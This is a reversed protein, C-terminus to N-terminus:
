IDARVFSTSTPSRTLPTVGLGSEVRELRKAVSGNLNEEGDSGSLEEQLEKNAVTRDHQSVFHLWCPCCNISFHAGACVDYPLLCIVFTSSLIMPTTPLKSEEEM